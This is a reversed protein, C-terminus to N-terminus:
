CRKVLIGDTQDFCIVFSRYGCPQVQSDRGLITADKRRTKATDFRSVDPSRLCVMSSSHSYADVGSDLSPLLARSLWSPIM